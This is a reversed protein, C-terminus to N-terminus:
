LVRCLNLVGYYPIELLREGELIEGADALIARLFAERSVDGFVEAIPRGYLCVGRRRVCFLHAPLDGDTRGADYSVEGRLVREHWASSYHLEYPTPIPVRAATDATMASVELSGVTPRKEALRAIALNLGAAMGGDLRDPVVILLDIDSKPRYYSGTALSGHLYVGTVNAAGLRDTALRIFRQVFERIDADCTQWSQAHM